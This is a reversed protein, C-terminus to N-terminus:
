VPGSVATGNLLPDRRDACVLYSRGLALLAAAALIKTLATCVNNMGGKSVTFTCVCVYVCVRVYLVDEADAGREVPGSARYQLGEGLGPSM